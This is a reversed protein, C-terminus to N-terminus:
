WPMVKIYDITTDHVTWWGFNNIYVKCESLERMWSANTQSVIAGDNYQVQRLGMNGDFWSKCTVYTDKVVSGTRTHPSPFTTWGQLELQLGVLSDLYADQGYAMCLHNSNIVDQIHFFVAKYTTSGSGGIKWRAEMYVRNNQVFFHENREIQPVKDTSTIALYVTGDNFTVTGNTNTRTWRTSAGTEFGEEFGPIDSAELTIPSLEVIQSPVYNDGRYVKVTPTFTGATNYIHQIDM